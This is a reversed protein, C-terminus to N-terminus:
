FYRKYLYGNTLHLQFVNIMYFVTFLFTRNKRKEYEKWELMRLM